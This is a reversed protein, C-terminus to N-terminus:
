EVLRKQSVNYLLGTQGYRNKTCEAYNNIFNNDVKHVIINIGADYLPKTGGRIKGGSTRQFIVIFITDPFDKRLKDFESSDVDLKTWSDIIIVDFVKAKERVDKLSNEESVFLRERNAPKLYKDRNTMVINSNAGIELSYFGIKMGLDAFGDALQFAFQTKGAGQDGELTIALKYRELDGLLKGIDGKM